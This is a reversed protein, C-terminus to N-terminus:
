QHNSGDDRNEHNGRPASTRRDPGAAAATDGAANDVIDVPVAIGGVRILGAERSPSDLKACTDM